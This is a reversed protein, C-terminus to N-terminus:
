KCYFYTSKKLFNIVYNQLIGIFLTLTIKIKGFRYLLLLKYNKQPVKLKTVFYDFQQYFIM